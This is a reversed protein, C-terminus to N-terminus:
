GSQGRVGGSLVAAGAPNGSALLAAGGLTSGAQLLGPLFGPDEQSGQPQLFQLITALLQQQGQQGIQTAQNRQGGITDLAQLRRNEADRFSLEAIEQRRRAFQDALAGRTFGEAESLNRSFRGGATGFQNRVGGITLARERDEFPQLSRFLDSLDFSPASLATRASEEFGLGNPDFGLVNQAAGQSLRGSAEGLRGIFDEFSIPTNVDQEFQFPGFGVQETTTDSFLGQLASGASAAADRTELPSGSKTGGGM